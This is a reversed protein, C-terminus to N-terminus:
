SAADVIPPVLDFGAQREVEAAVQYMVQEGLPPAMVQFGIPLGSEDLGIPVSIAPHGALNAPINCLDSLYM